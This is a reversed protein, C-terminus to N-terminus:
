DKKFGQKKVIGDKLVAIAYEYGDMFAERQTEEIIDEICKQFAEQEEAPILRKLGEVKQYLKEENKM